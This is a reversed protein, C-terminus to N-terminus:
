FATWWAKWICSPARSARFDACVGWWPMATSLNPWRRGLLVFGAGRWCLFGAPSARLMYVGAPAAAATDGPHARAIEPMLLGSLATLVSFRFFLLPLAM